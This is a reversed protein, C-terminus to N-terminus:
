FLGMKFAVPIVIGLVCGAFLQAARILYTVHAPTAMLRSNGPDGPDVQIHVTGPARGMAAGKGLLLPADRVVTTQNDRHIAYDVYELSTSSVKKHFVGEEGSRRNRHRITRRRKALFEADMEIGSQRLRWARLLGRMGRWIMWLGCLFALLVPAGRVADDLPTGPEAIAFLVFWVFLVAVLFAGILTSLWRPMPSSGLLTPVM